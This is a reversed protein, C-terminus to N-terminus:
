KIGSVSSNASAESLQAVVVSTLALLISVRGMVSTFAVLHFGLGLALAM